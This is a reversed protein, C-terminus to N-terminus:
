RPVEFVLVTVTLERQPDDRHHLVFRFGTEGLYPLRQRFNPHAEFVGPIKELVTSLQRDRNFVIIATKTDRWSAYGLLQDIAERLGQPGTWFKCEAIFLNKNERRILIDTKGNANFTEGTADGEYQGNLQVLFHNRLDEEQLNQFTKPSREMVSVMGTIIRLIQEYDAMDIAPELPTAPQAGPAAAPRAELRRRQLPAVYTDPANERKRLPYGLRTLLERNAKLRERRHRILGRILDGLRTNHADVQGKVVGLNSKVEGLRRDLDAKMAAADSGTHVYSFVLENADITAYPPNLSYTSPQLQFLLSLGTYPVHLRLITAEVMFPQSRDRIVRNPDESVDIKTREDSVTIASEELIPVALRLEAELQSALTEESTNLITADDLRDVRDRAEQECQRLYADLDGHIRCFLVEDRDYMHWTM